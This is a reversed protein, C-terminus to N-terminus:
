VPSRLLRLLFFVAIAAAAILMITLGRWLAARELGQDLRQETLPAQQSPSADVGTALEAETHVQELPEAASAGIGPLGGTTPTAEIKRTPDAIGTDTRTETREDDGISRAGPPPDPVDIGLAARVEEREHMFIWYGNAVCIEDEPLLRSSTIWERLQEASIPGLLRGSASRVMWSARENGAPTAVQPVDTSASSGASDDMGEVKASGSGASM